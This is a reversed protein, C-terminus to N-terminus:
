ARPEDGGGLKAMDGRLGREIGIFGFPLVSLLMNKASRTIPWEHELAARILAVVFVLFLAGHAMGVIRVALPQGFVYKLPMAIGLLILFSLGEVLSVWRFFKLESM